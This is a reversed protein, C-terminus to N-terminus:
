QIVYFYIAFFHCASGGLVFLHWVAHYFDKHDMAYFAVGGTYSLGGAVLWALGGSPVNEFLPKIAILALWGMGVYLGASLKWRKLGNKAAVKYIIGVFGLGWVLGFLTWGWGGRLTVLTFPTYTGAILLYIAAHDFRRMMKKIKPKQVGHYLTSALYMTVLTAGYVSSSVIQWADGATASKYVLVILGAIALGLGAGHTIANAIEEALTQGQHEATPTGPADEQLSDGTASTTSPTKSATQRPTADSSM